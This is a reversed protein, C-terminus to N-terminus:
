SLRTASSWRVSVTDAILQTTRNPRIVLRFGVDDFRDTWNLIRRMASRCDTVPSSSAGGRAICNGGSASGTPDELRGERYQRFGDLCLEWVNGHMQYLGASNPRFSKVPLVARGASGSESVRLVGHASPKSSMNGQWGGINAQESSLSVGTSYPGDKGARCAYEWEAETPLEPRIGSNLVQLKTLFEGVDKRSVGVVPLEDNTLGIQSQPMYARWLKCSCATDALWFGETLCVVHQPGESESRGMEDNPSGMLFEGPEMWRFREIVGGLQMDMWLGYSDDGWACARPLPFEPPWRQAEPPYALDPTPKPAQM